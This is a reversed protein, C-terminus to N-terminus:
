KASHRRGVSANRLNKALRWKPRTGIGEVREFLESYRYICGRIASQGISRGLIGSVAEAIERFSLRPWEIGSQAWLAVVIADITSM